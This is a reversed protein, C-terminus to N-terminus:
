VLLITPLTLHTYSVSMFCEQLKSMAQELEIRTASNAFPINAILQELEVVLRGAEEHMELHKGVFEFDDLTTVTKEKDM